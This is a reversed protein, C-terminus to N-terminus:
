CPTQISPRGGNLLCMFISFGFAICAVAFALAVLQFSTSTFFPSSQAKVGTSYRTSQKFGQRLGQIRSRHPQHAQTSLNVRVCDVYLEVLFARMNRKVRFPTHDRFRDSYVLNWTNKLEIRNSLMRLFMCSVAPPLMSQTFTLVVHGIHRTHQMRQAGPRHYVSCLKVYVSAQTSSVESKEVIKPFSNSVTAGVM